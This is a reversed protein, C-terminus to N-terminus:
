LPELFIKYIIKVKNIQLQTTLSRITEDKVKYKENLKLREMQYM